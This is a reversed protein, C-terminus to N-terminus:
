VVQGSRNKEEKNKNKRSRRLFIYGGQLLFEARSATHKLIYRKVTEPSVDLEFACERVAASFACGGTSCMETLLSVFETETARNYAILDSYKLNRSEENM